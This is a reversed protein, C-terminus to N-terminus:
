NSSEDAPLNKPELEAIAQSLQEFVAKDLASLAALDDHNKVDFLNNGQEDCLRTALTRTLRNPDYIKSLQETLTIEDNFALTIGQEEAISILEQQQGYLAQNMEGVTFERIYYNEGNIAIQTIKPKNALLKERLNM